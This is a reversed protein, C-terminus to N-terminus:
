NPEGYKLKDAFNLSFKLTKINQAFKRFFRRGCFAPLTFLRTNKAFFIDCAILAGVQDQMLAILPSVVITVGSFILAPIQYCLSKGGGTPMVALTDRGSLINQIIEKQGARLESYGFVNKLVAEP